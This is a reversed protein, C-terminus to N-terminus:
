DSHANVFETLILTDDTFEMKQVLKGNIEMYVVNINDLDTIYSLNLRNIAIFGNQIPLYYFNFRYPFYNDEFIARRLEWLPENACLSWSAGPLYNTPHKPSPGTSKNYYLVPSRLWEVSWDEDPYIIASKM